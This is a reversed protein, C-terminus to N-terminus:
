LLYFSSSQAGHTFVLFPKLFNCGLSTWLLLMSASVLTHCAYMLSKLFLQLSNVEKELMLLDTKEQAHEHHLEKVDDHQLHFHNKLSGIQLFM